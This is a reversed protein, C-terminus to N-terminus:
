HTWCTGGSQSKVSTVYNTGNYERLDFSEPPEELPASKPKIIQNYEIENNFISSTTPMLLISIAIILILSKFIPSIKNM